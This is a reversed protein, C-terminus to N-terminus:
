VLFSLVLTLVCLALMATANVFLNRGLDHARVHMAIAVLFYAILCITTILALVPVWIGLVLGAAAAFKIPAMIWWRSRPWGVDTFCQAVFAAPRVCLVADVFSVAALLIVPWAPDPLITVALVYWRAHYTRSTVLVV